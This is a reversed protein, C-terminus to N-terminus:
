DGGKHWGNHEIRSDHRFCLLSFIGGVNCKWRCWELTHKGAKAAALVEGKHRDNTTGIYVVDVSPDALLDDISSYARPIGNEAAYGRAPEPSSSMVAAVSSDPQSNIAELMRTKATARSVGVDAAVDMLTVRESPPAPSRDPFRPELETSPGKLYNSALSRGPPQSSPFM